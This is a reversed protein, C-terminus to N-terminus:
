KSEANKQELPGLVESNEKRIVDYFKALLNRSPEDEVADLFEKVSKFDPAAKDKAEKALDEPSKEAPKEALDKVKQALDRIRKQARPTLKAIEEESLEGDEAIVKDGEKEPVVEDKKPKEGSAEPEEAKGKALEEDLQEYLDKEGEAVDTDKKKEM